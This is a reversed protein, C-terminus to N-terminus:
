DIQVCRLVPEQRVLQLKDAIGYGDVESWAHM